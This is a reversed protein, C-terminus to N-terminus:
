VKPLLPLLYAQPMLLHPNFSLLVQRYIGGGCGSFGIVVILASLALILNNGLGSM